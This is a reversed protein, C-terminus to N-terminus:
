VDLNEKFYKRQLVVFIMIIFFLLVGLATAKGFKMQAFTLNWMLMVVSTTAFAPGGGTMVFPADFVQLNGIVSLILMVAIIPRLRPLSIAFIKRWFGTGELEAAEYLEDPIGQLTAMYILGPGYMILGPLILCLMALNPDNLWGSLPLGLFKLIANFLGYEPHYLWKWIVIGAMSSVPVFWLLMMVRILNKRMEMLLIAVFIPLVFTLAISLFAYYFTNRFGILLLDWGFLYSFNAFGVYVCPEFIYFKQFALVFAVGIPFWGFFFQFLLGPAAFAWAIRQKFKLREREM